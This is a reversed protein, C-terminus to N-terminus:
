ALKYQKTMKEVNEVAALGGLIALGLVFFVASGLVAWEGKVNHGMRSAIGSGTLLYVVFNAISFVIFGVGICGWNTNKSSKAM